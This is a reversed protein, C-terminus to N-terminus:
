TQRSSHEVQSSQYYPSSINLRFAHVKNSTHNFPPKGCFHGIGDRLSVAYSYRGKSAASGGIIRMEMEDSAYPADDVAQSVGAFSDAFVGLRRGRLSASSPVWLHSAIILLKASLSAM